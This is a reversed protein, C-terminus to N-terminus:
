YRLLWLDPSKQLLVKEQTALIKDLIDSFGEKDSQNSWDYITSKGVNLALALGVISPMIDDYETDYNELYHEAKAITEENYKSPRGTPM